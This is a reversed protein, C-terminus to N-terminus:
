LLELDNTDDCPNGTKSMGYNIRIDSM